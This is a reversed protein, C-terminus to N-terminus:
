TNQQLLVCFENTLPLPTLKDLAQRQSLDQTQGSFYFGFVNKPNLSNFYNVESPAGKDVVVVLYKAICLQSLQYATTEINKDACKKNM